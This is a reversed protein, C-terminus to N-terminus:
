SSSVLIDFTAKRIVALSAENAAEDNWKQDRRKLFPVGSGSAPLDAGAKAETPRCADRFDSPGRLLRRKRKELIDAPASHDSLYDVM